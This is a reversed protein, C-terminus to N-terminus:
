AWVAIPFYTMRRGANFEPNQRGSTSYRVSFSASEFAEKVSFSGRQRKQAWSEAADIFAKSFYGGSQSEQASENMSCSLALIRGTATEMMAQSFLLRCRDRNDAAFSAMKRVEYSDQLPMIDRCSDAIVFVRSASSDLSKTQIYQKDNLVLRTEEPETEGEPYYGHGSFAIFLYDAQSTEDLKRRLSDWTPRELTSIEDGYWAGGQPSTLFSKYRLIDAKTGPIDRDGSDILIARRQM